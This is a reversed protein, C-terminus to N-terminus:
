LIFIVNKWFYFIVNKGIFELFSTAQKKYKNECSSKASLYLNQMETLQWTSADLSQLFLKCVGGTSIQSRQFLSNLQFSTCVHLGILKFGCSNQVDGDIRM